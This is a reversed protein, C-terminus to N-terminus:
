AARTADRTLAAFYAIAHPNDRRLDLVPSFNHLFERLTRRLHYRALRDPFYLPERLLCALARCYTADAHQEADFASEECFQLAAILVATPTPRM